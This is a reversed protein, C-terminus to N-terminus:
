YRSRGRHQLRGVTRGSQCCHPSPRTPWWTATCPSAGTLVDYVTLAGGYEGYAPTTGVYVSNGAAQGLRAPEPPPQRRSSNRRTRRPGPANPDWLSLRGYPYIGVYMKGTNDWAWDEVQGQRTTVTSKGTAPRLGLDVREPLRQRLGQRERPGRTRAHASGPRVPVTLEVTRAHRGAPQVPVNRRTTVRRVAGPQRERHGLRLRDIRWPDGHSATVGPRRHEHGPRLSHPRAHQQHLVRVRVPQPCVVHRSRTTWSRLARLPM